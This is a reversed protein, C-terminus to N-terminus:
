TKWRAFDNISNPNIFTYLNTWVKRFDRQTLQEITIIMSIYKIRIHIRFSGLIIINRGTTRLIYFFFLVRM